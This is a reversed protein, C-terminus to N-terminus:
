LNITVDALFLSSVLITDTPCLLPLLINIHRTFTLQLLWNWVFQLHPGPICAVLFQILHNVPFQLINIMFGIILIVPFDGLTTLAGILACHLVIIHRVTSLFNNSNNKLERERWWIGYSIFLKDCYQFPNLFVLMNIYSFMQIHKVRGCQGNRANTISIIFM